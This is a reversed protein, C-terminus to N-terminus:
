VDNTYAEKAAMRGGQAAVAEQIHTHREHINKSSQSAIAASDLAAKQHQQASNLAATYQDRLAYLEQMTGGDDGFELAGAQEIASEIAALQEAARQALAAAEEATVNAESAFRAVAAKLTNVGTVEPITALAMDNDGTTDTSEPTKILVLAPKAAPAPPPTPSTPKPALDPGPAGDTSIDDGIEAPAAKNFRDAARKRAKPWERKWGRVFGKTFTHAFTAGTATYAAIKGGLKRGKKKGAKASRKKHKDSVDGLANDIAKASTWAIAFLLILALM